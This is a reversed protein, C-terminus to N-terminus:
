LGVAQLAQFYLWHGYDNPHNINNGLLDEPKKRSAVTMWLHYVDAFACREALAVRETADAYAAMNHSGYHWKPNPPFASFLVVEAGTESRIREIMSRLNAAFVDLPVGFGERNHDNMGFGVLVLDPKQQLVKEPLRQMGQITSDGGTAGNTIDISAGPYKARLATAWREWFILGPESTDGGATISDGFAVIRVQRGAQLRQQTNPLQAARLDPHAAPRVWKESHAYDVYVFFPGNGFGPWQEHRFDEKGFLINTGFDPIRSDPARRIRNPAELLYDRGQEYQITQSLGERYTSRVAVPRSASPPFALNAPTEGM